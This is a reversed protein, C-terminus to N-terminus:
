SLSHEENVLDESRPRGTDLYDATKLCGPCVFCVCLDASRKGLESM